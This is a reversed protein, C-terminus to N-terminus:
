TTRRALRARRAGTVGTSSPRAEVTPCLMTQSRTTPRGIRCCYQFCYQCNLLISLQAVNVNLRYQCKLLISLYAINVLLCYQCILLISLYALWGRSQEAAVGVIFCSYVWHSLHLLQLVTSTRSVLCRGRSQEAAVGVFVCTYLRCKVQLLQASICSRSM